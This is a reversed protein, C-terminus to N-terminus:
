FDDSFDSDYSDGDDFDSDFDDDSDFDEIEDTSSTLWDLENLSEKKDLEGDRDWDFTRDFGRDLKENWDRM